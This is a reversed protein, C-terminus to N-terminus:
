PPNSADFGVYNIYPGGSLVTAGGLGGPTPEGMTAINTHSTSTQLLGGYSTGNSAVQFVLGTEPPPCATVNLTGSPTVCTHAVCDCTSECGFTAAGDLDYYGPNCPGRACQGAVCVASAHLPQPCASADCSASATPTQCTANRCALGNNCAAGSSCCAQGSNGCAATASLCTGNQCTLGSTCATGSACCAQSAAGCPSAGSGGGGCAAGLSLTAAIVAPMVSRSSMTRVRLIALGAVLGEARSGEKSSVEGCRRVSWSRLVEPPPERAFAYGVERERRAVQNGAGAARAERGLEEGGLRGRGGTRAPERYRM